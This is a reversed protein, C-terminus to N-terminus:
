CRLIRLGQAVLPCTYRGALSLRVSGPHVGIRSPQGRRLRRAYPNGEVLVGKSDESSDGTLSHELLELQNVTKSISSVHTLSFIKEV